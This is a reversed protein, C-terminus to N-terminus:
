PLTEQIAKFVMELKTDLKADVTGQATDIVCGGAAVIQDASVSVAHERGVMLQLDHKAMLVMEYDGPNVRIVIHDQDRVKALAEKVIPLITAPNEALERAIVKGAVALALEVIQREADIIMHQAEQEALKVTRDAKEVAQQLTQQMEALAAQQGEALGAQYGQAHGEERAACALERAQTQADALCRAAAAQAQALINDAAAQVEELCIEPIVPEPEAEVECVPEPVPPRYKIIVPATREFFVSKLIRSM